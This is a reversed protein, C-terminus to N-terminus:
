CGFDLIGHRLSGRGIVLQQVVYRRARQRGWPRLERQMREDLVRGALLVQRHYQAVDAIAFRHKRADM